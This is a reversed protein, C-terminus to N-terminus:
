TLLGIVAQILQTKPDVQYISGDSYRYDADPGDRYRDRYSTPVNYVDYGQPM